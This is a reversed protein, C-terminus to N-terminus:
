NTKLYFLNASAATINYQKTFLVFASFTINDNKTALLTTQEATAATANAYVKSFTFPRQVTIKTMKVSNIVTDKETKASVNNLNDDVWDFTVDGSQDITTYDFNTLASATFIQNLHLAFSLTLGETPILLSVNEYYVMKLTDGYVNTAVFQSPAIFSIQHILADTDLATSASSGSTSSTSKSSSPKVEGTKTCSTITVAAFLIPLIYKFFSKM